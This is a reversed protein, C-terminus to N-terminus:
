EGGEVSKLLSELRETTARTKAIKKRIQRAGAERAASESLHWGRGIKEGKLGGHEGCTTVIEIWNSAYGNPRCATGHIIGTTEVRLSIWVHFMDRAPWGLDPM